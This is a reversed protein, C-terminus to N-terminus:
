WGRTDKLWLWDDHIWEGMNEYIYDSTGKRSVFDCLADFQEQTLHEDYDELILDIDEPTISILVRNKDYEYGM